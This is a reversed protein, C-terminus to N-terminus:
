GKLKRHCIARVGNVGAEAVSNKLRSLVEIGDLDPMVLDLLVLSIAGASDKELISLAEEGGMASKVRYGFRKITEELIRRQAPDDDVILVCQSM